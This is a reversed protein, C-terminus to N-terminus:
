RSVSGKIYVKISSGTMRGVDLVVMSLDVM